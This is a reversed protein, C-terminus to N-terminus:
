AEALACRESDYSMESMPDKGHFVHLRYWERYGLEGFGEEARTYDPAFNPVPRNM